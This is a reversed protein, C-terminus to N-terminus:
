LLFALLTRLSSFHPLDTPIIAKFFLSSSSGVWVPVPQPKNGLFFTFRKYHSVIVHNGRDLLASTLSLAFDFDM